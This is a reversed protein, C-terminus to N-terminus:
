HVGEISDEKPYVRSKEDNMEQEQEQSVVAMWKPIKLPCCCSLCKTKASLTCGCKICHEDPRLSRRRNRSNFECDTCIKMRQSGVQRIVTKLHEPPFLNNLWGEYIQSFDIKM